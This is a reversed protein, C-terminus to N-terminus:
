DWMVNNHFQIINHIVVVKWSKFAIDLRVKHVLLVWAFEKAVDMAHQWKTDAVLIRPDM